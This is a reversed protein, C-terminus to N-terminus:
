CASITIRATKNPSYWWLQLCLGYHLHLQHLSLLQSLQLNDKPDIIASCQTSPARQLASLKHPGQINLGQSLPVHANALECLKSRGVQMMMARVPHAGTVTSIDRAVPQLGSCNWLNAELALDQDRYVRAPNARAFSRQWLEEALSSCSFTCM